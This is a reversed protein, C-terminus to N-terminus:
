RVVIGKITGDPNIGSVKVKQGNKLTVVEGVKPGTAVTTKDEVVDPFGAGYDTLYTDGDKGGTIRNIQQGYQVRLNDYQGRAAAYKKQITTKMNKRAEPTLFSTNSFIRAANFGFTDAWSQAYKQVTKYEGERVVSDPDMAKAFAYILAQDDAPNTTNPDLSNAFSVSEAMTQVRKVVPQADFAKGKSDVRRQTPPPLGGAGNQVVIKASEAADHIAQKQMALDAEPTIEKGEKIAIEKMRSYIALANGTLEPRKKDGVFLKGDPGVALPYGAFEAAERLPMPKLFQGPNEPDPVKISVNVIEGNDVATKNAPSKIAEEIAKYYLPKADQPTYTQLQRLDDPGIRIGSLAAINSWGTINQEYEARTKAGKAGVRYREVLDLMRRRAAEQREAEIQATREQMAQQKLAFEQEHEQQRRRSEEALLTGRGAGIAANPHGSAALAITAIPGILQQWDIGHPPAAMPAPASAQGFPLAPGSIPISPLPPLEDM